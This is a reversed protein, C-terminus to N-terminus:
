VQTFLQTWSQDNNIETYEGGKFSSSLLPMNVGKRHMNVAKSKTVRVQRHMNVAKQAPHNQLETWIYNTQANKLQIIKYSQAYYIVQTHMNVAKPAPHNQFEICEYKYSTEPYKGGKFSSLSKKNGKM